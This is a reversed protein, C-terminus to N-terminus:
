KGPSSVPKLDAQTDPEDSREALNNALADTTSSGQEQNSRNVLLDPKEKALVSQDERANKPYSKGEAQIELTDTDSINREKFGM